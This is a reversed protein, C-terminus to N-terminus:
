GVIQFEAIKAGQPVRIFSLFAHNVYLSASTSNCIHLNMLPRFIVANGSLFYLLTRSRGVSSLNELSIKDLSTFVRLTEM